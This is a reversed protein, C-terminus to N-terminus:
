PSEGLWAVCARNGLRSLWCRAPRTTGGVVTAFATLEAAVHEVQEWRPCHGTGPYTVLRTGPIAALLPDQDSRRCFADQEGWL